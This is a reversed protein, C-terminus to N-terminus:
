LKNSSNDTSNNELDRLNNMALTYFYLENKCYHNPIM